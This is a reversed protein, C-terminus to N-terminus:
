LGNQERKKRQITNSIKQKVEESRPVGRGHKGYNSISLKLRHEESFCRGKNTHGNIFFKDEKVEKGCGCSCFKM